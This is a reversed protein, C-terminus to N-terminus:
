PKRLFAQGDQMRKGTVNGPVNGSITKNSPGNEHDDRIQGLIDVLKTTAVKRVGDTLVCRDQRGTGPPATAKQRLVVVSTTVVDRLM